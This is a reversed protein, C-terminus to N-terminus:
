KAFGDFYQVKTSGPVLRLGAPIGKHADQYQHSKYWVQFSPQDEWFTMLWIENPNEQPSLVEMRVFGPANDVMHPRNVFAERVEAVLGNAITFTSLAIFM